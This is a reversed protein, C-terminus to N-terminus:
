GALLADTLEKVRTNKDFYEELLPAIEADIIDRYWAEWDMTSAIPLLGEPGVRAWNTPETNPCFYSHGIRFGPGLDREASIEDNLKGIRDAIRDAFAASAGKGTLWTRFETRHLAPALTVFAFRRRLAYDVMALSRDATNMTGIVHLNEPLWFTEEVTDAYTLPMAFQPGRKDAELLMLLEGFIKALNGRNIEDIIFFCPRGDHRARRAFEHFVGNRLRLGTGDPRYGQIFDEYGYSPHFQVMCVRSDDREGMLAYALRRAVFTKGVGPPGQLIIGKKRTLRALITDLQAADMFLGELADAKTFVNRAPPAVVPNREDILARIVDFEDETLAFLSGQNNKIPECGALGVVTQLEAWTVPQEIQEIKQFEFVDGEATFHLAKTIECIAAVEKDPNTLYGILLDGPAVESFYRFKQRKRGKENYATYTQRAGVALNRFDWIKPNANLWWHRRPRNAPTAPALPALADPDIGAIELRKRHEESEEVITLTKNPCRLDEPVQWPGIALFEAARRHPYHSHAPDFRYDGTIRAVGLMEFHGRFVFVIDGPKMDRSFSWAGLTDNSRRADEGAEVPWLQNLRVRMAERDAFTRFDEMKDFGLAVESSQRFDDWAEGRQGARLLWYSRSAEAIKPLEEEVSEEEERHRDAYQAPAVKEVFAARSLTPFDTGEKAICADLWRFYTDGNWVDEPVGRREMYGRMWKDAPLFERPNLWFMGISLKVEGVSRQALLRIYLARDLTARTGDIVQRAFQWLRGIDGADRRHQWGFFWLQQPNGLPIGDFDEPVAESLQWADRLAALIARRKEPKHGQWNFTAFFSFPDIETLPVRHEPADQDELSGVQLGRGAFDRLLALLEDQRNEFELLKRAIEQYLPIWTFM